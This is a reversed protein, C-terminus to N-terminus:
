STNAPSGAYRPRSRPRYWAAVGSAKCFHAAWIRRLLARTVMSASGLGLAGM